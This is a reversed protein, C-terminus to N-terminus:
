AGKGPAKAATGKGLAISTGIGASLGQWLWVYDKYQAGATLAVRPGLQLQLGIGGALYPNTTSMSLDNFTAFYFGGPSM